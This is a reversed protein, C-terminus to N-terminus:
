SSLSLPSSVAAAPWPQNWGMSAWVLVCVVVPVGRGM